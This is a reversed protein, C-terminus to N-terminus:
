QLDNYVRKAFEYNEKLSLHNTAEKGKLHEKEFDYPGSNIWGSLQDLGYFEENEYKKINKHYEPYINRYLKYNCNIKSIMHQVCWSQYQAQLRHSHQVLHNKIQKIHYNRIHSIVNGSHITPKKSFPSYTIEDVKYNFDEVSVKNGYDDDDLEFRDSSALVIIIIKPDYKLVHEIQYCTFYNSAGVASMNLLPLELKDALIKPWTGEETGYSFSNGCIALM